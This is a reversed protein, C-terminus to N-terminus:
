WNSSETGKNIALVLDKVYKSMFDSCAKVAKENNVKGKESFLGLSTGLIKKGVLVVDHGESNSLEKFFPEFRIKGDKFNLKIKYEFSYINAGSLTLTTKVLDRVLGDIFIEENVQETTVYKPNNYMSGLYSKALKFLESQTKNPFDLVVFEKDGSRFGDKTLEFEQGKSILFGCLIVLTFLIKKM